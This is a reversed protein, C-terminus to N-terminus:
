RACFWIMMTLFQWQVHGIATARSVGALECQRELPLAGAANTWSLRLAGNLPMVKKLWDLETKLRGIEGYLRDEGDHVVEAKSRAERRVLYRCPITNVEEV